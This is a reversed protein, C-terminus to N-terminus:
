YDTGVEQTVIIGSTGNLSNLFYQKINDYASHFM